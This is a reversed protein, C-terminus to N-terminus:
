AKLEALFKATSPDHKVKTPKAERAAKLDGAFVVPIKRRKILRFHPQNQRMAEYEEHTPLPFRDLHFQLFSGFFKQKGGAGERLKQVTDKRLVCTVQIWNEPDPKAPRGSGPRAGGHRKLARRAAPSYFKRAGPAARKKKGNTSM